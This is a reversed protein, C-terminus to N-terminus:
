LLPMIREPGRPAVTELQAYLAIIPDGARRFDDMLKGLGHPDLAARGLIANVPLFWQIRSETQFKNRQTFALLARLVTEQDEPTPVLNLLDAYIGSKNRYFQAATTDSNEHWSAMANLFDRLQNQWEAGKRDAPSYALGNEQFMLKRYQQAISQCDTDQCTRLGEAAGETKSATTEGDQILQLPPV